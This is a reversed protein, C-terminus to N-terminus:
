DNVHSYGQENEELVLSWNDYHYSTIKATINSNDTHPFSLEHKVMCVIAMSMAYRLVTLLGGGTGTMLALTFRCSLIWHPGGIVLLM